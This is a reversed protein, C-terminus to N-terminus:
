WRRLKEQRDANGVELRSKAKFMDGEMESM